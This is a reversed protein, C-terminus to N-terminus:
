ESGADSRSQLFDKLQQGRLEYMDHLKEGYGGAHQFDEGMLAGFAWFALFLALVSIAICLLVRAIREPLPKEAWEYSNVSGSSDHQESFDNQLQSEIDIEEVPGDDDKSGCTCCELITRLWPSRLSM